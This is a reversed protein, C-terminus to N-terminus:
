CIIFLTTNLDLPIIDTSHKKALKNFKNGLTIISRTPWVLQREAKLIEILLKLLLYAGIAFIIIDTNISIM